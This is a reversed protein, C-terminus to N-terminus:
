KLKLAKKLAEKDFGIIIKGDIEIVPVGMQGTRILLEAAAEQDDEVNVEDFEIKNAMLFDTAMHCYPCSNTVYIKVKPKAMPGCYRLSTVVM